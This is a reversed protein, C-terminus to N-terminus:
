NKRVFRDVYLKMVEYVKMNAVNADEGTKAIIFKKMLKEDFIYARITKHGSSIAKAIRHVGDVPGNKNLIIPYRLDAAAISDVDRKYKTPNNLADRTSYPADNNDIWTKKDLIYVLSATPVTTVEHKHTQLYVLMMDVSYLYQGNNFLAYRM